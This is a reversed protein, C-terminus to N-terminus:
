EGRLKVIRAMRPELGATDIRLWYVGAPAPRGDHDRRGDWHLVHRGAGLPEEALRAIRRGAVDLVWVSVPKSAVVQFTPDLNLELRVEDVMPNPTVSFAPTSSLATLKADNRDSCQPPFVRLDDGAILVFQDSATVDRPWSHLQTESLGLIMPQLPDSIDIVAMRDHALYAYDGQIHIATAELIESDEIRGVEVPLAPDALDIVQVGHWDIVFAHNGSVALARGAETGLVGVLVPDAPSTVDVVNLSYADLIYAYGGEVVMAIGDIAMYGYAVPSQPNSIDITWTGNWGTTYLWSGFAVIDVVGSVGPVSAVIPMYHPSSVDVVDVARMSYGLYAFDGQVELVEAREPLYRSGEVGPDAPDSFDLVALLPGSDTLYVLNAEADTSYVDYYWPFVTLAKPSVDSPANAFHLGGAFRVECFYVVGDAVHAGYVRFDLEEDHVLNLQDPESADVVYFNGYDYWPNGSTAYIADGNIAVGNIPDRLGDLSAEVVPNLPDSVDLLDLFGVAHEYRYGGGLYLRDGSVAVASVIATSWLSKLAHPDTPDSIDVVALGTGGEDFGGWVVFAVDGHLAVAKSPGAFPYGGIMIPLDPDTLDYVQLGSGTAASLLGPVAALDYIRDTQVTTILTPTFPDSVDVVHLQGGVAGVYIRDGLAALTVPGGPLEIGDLFSAEGSPDGVTSVDFLDLRGVCTACSVGSVVYARNGDVAVDKGHDTLDAAGLFRFSGGFDVCQAPVDTPGTIALSALLLPLLCHLQIVGRCGAFRMRRTATIVSRWDALENDGFKRSRRPQKGM